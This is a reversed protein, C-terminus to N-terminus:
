WLIPLPNVSAERARDGIITEVEAAAVTARATTSGAEGSTCDDSVQHCIHRYSRFRGEKQKMALDRLRLAEHRVTKNLSIHIHNNLMEDDSSIKLWQSVRSQNVVGDTMAVISDENQIRYDDFSLDHNLLEGQYIFQM